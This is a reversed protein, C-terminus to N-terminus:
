ARFWRKPPRASGDTSGLCHLPGGHNNGLV